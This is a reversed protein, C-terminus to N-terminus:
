DMVKVVRDCHRQRRRKENNRANQAKLSRSIAFASSGHQAVASWVNCALPLWRTANAHADAQMECVIQVTAPVRKTENVPVSYVFSPVVACWIRWRMGGHPRCVGLATADLFFFQMM